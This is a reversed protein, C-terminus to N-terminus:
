LPLREALKVEAHTEATCFEHFMEDTNIPVLM